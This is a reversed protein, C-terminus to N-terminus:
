IQRKYVDEDVTIINGEMSVDAKITDPCCNFVANVHKLHTYSVPTWGGLQYYLDLSLTFGKWSLSTNIGGFLDPISSGSYDERAKAMNTTYNIGNVNVIDESTDGIYDDAIEFINFGTQPDVGAWQYLWWEYVSHGEEVQRKYM